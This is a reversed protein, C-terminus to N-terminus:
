KKLKKARDVVNGKCYRNTRPILNSHFPFSGIWLKEVAHRFQEYQAQQRTAGHVAVLQDLHNALGGFSRQFEALTAHIRDEMLQFCAIAHNADVPWTATDSDAVIVTVLSWDTLNASSLLEYEVGPTLQAMDLRVKGNEETATLVPQQVVPMSVRIDDIYFTGSLAPKDEAWGEVLIRWQVLNGTDITSTGGFDDMTIQLTTWDSSIVPAADTIYNMRNGAGDYFSLWFNSGADAIQALGPDGKLKLSIVAEPPLSFPELIPSRVSGWPWQGAAFDIDLRLAQNGQPAPTEISAVTVSPHWSNEYSYTGRLAADDAYSEFDDILARPESPPSFEILPEDRIQIEDVYIAASYPDIAAQSGYQFFAIKSIYNMDINGSGNWPVEYTGSEFNIVQWDDVLLVQTGWRVFDGWEDYVYLYINKFDSTSFAPDGRLRFTVYQDPGISVWDDLVPGTITETAWATSPFSFDVKMCSGQAAGPAVEASLAPTAGASPVWDLLFEEETAYEFDEIMTVTAAGASWLGFAAMLFWTYARM